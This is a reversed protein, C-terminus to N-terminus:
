RPSGSTTREPLLYPLYRVLHNLLDALIRRRGRAKGASEPIPRPMDNARRQLAWARPRTNTIAKRATATDTAEVALAAGRGISGAAAIVTVTTRSLDDYRLPSVALAVAIM